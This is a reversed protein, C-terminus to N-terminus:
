GIKGSFGIFIVASFYAAGYTFATMWPGINGGGLFFDHFTSTKRGRLIGIAVIALVYLTLVVIKLIM